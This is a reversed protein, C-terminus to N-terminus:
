KKGRWVYYLATTWLVLPLVQAAVSVWMGMLIFSITISSLGLFLALLGLLSFGKLDNRNKLVSKLQPIAAFCLIWTGVDMMLM